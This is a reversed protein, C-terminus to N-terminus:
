RLSKLIPELFRGYKSLTAQDHARVAEAVANKIEPTVIEIRGVFVREIKAPPPDITLPLIADVAARPLIYVLRAGEEFWSDSWTELMAKAEDPFLGGAILAGQLEQQLSRIDADLEPRELTGESDAAVRYGIRGNRNEFFIVAGPRDSIRNKVVLRNGVFQASLPPQFSAVGRYFLFKEDQTEGGKSVEVTAAATNRAAYYHSARNDERLPESIQHRIKVAPWVIRGISGGDYLSTNLPSVNAAPYWETIVGRPFDVKVSVDTEQPSYFYLVPTEMRVTARLGGKFGPDRFHIVFSPLDSAGGLPLWEATNGNADAISTFTGWEHVVLGNQPGSEGAILSLGVLMAVSLCRNLPM